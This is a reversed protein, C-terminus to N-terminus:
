KQDINDSKNILKNLYEISGALKRGTLSDLKKKLNDIDSDNAFAITNDSKASQLQDRLKEIIEDKTSPMIKSLKINGSKLQRLVYTSM